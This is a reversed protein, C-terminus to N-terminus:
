SLVESRLLSVTRFLRDLPYTLLFLNMMVEYLIPCTRKQRTSEYAYTYNNSNCGHYMDYMHVYFLQTHIKQSDQTWQKLFDYATCGQQKSFIMIKTQRVSYYIRMSTVRCGGSCSTRFNFHLQIISLICSEEEFVLYM